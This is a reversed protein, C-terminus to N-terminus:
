EEGITYDFPLMDAVREKSWVGGTKIAYIDFYRGQKDLITTDCTM